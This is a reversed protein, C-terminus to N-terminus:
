ACSFGFVCFSGLECAFWFCIFVVLGSFVGIVAGLSLVFHFHSVVFYSDHLCVDLGSNALLLGTLGGFLFMGIFVVVM